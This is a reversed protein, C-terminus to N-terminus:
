PELLAGTPPSRYSPKGTPHDSHSRTPHDSHSRAPHDPEVWPRPGDKRCLSRAAIMEEVTSVDLAAAITEDTDADGSIRAHTPFAKGDARWGRLKDNVFVEFTALEALCRDAQAGRATPRRESRGGRAVRGRHGFIRARAHPCM